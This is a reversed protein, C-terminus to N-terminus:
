SEASAQIDAEFSLEIVVAEADFLRGSKWARLPPKAAIRANRVRVIHAPSFLIVIEASDNEKDLRVNARQGPMSRM